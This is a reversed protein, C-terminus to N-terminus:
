LKDIFEKLIGKLILEYIYIFEICEKQLETISNNELKLYKIADDSCLISNCIADFNEKDQNWVMTSLVSRFIDLYTKDIIVKSKDFVSPVISSTLVIKAWRTIDSDNDKLQVLKNDLLEKIDPLQYNNDMQNALSNLLTYLQAKLIFQLFNIFERSEEYLQIDSKYELGLGSKANEYDIELSKNDINFLLFINSILNSLIIENDIFENNLPNPILHSTLIIKSSRILDGTNGVKQEFLSDLLDMLQENPSKEM